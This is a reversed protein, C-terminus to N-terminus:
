REGGTSRRQQYDSLNRAEFMELMHARHRKAATEDPHESVLRHDRYRMCLTWVGPRDPCITWRTGDPDVCELDGGGMDAWVSAQKM